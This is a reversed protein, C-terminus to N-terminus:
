KVEKAENSYFTLTFRERVPNPYLQLSSGSTSGMRQKFYTLRLPSAKSGEVSFYGATNNKKLASWNRGADASSWLIIESPNVNQSEVDLYSARVKATFPAHYAPEIEYYRQISEEGNGNLQQLHGRKIVTVGMNDSSNFELGINGPNISHPANLDGRIRVFGGNTGTRRSSSREGIIKGSTGLDSSYNQM